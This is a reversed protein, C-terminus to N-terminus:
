NVISISRYLLFIDCDCLDICTEYCLIRICVITIGSTMRATKCVSLFIITACYAVSSINVVLRLRRTIVTHLQGEVKRGMDQTCLLLTMSFTCFYRDHHEIGQKKKKSALLHVPIHVYLWERSSPRRNKTHEKFIEMITPLEPVIIKRPTPVASKLYAAYSDHTIFCTYLKISSM